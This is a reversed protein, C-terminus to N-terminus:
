IKNVHYPVAKKIREEAAYSDDRKHFALSIAMRSKAPSDEGGVLLLTTGVGGDQRV